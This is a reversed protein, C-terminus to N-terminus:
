SGCYRRERPPVPCRVLARMKGTALCTRLRSEHSYFVPFRRCIGGRSTVHDPLGVLPGGVRRCCFSTLRRHGGGSRSLCGLGVSLMTTSLRSVHDGVNICGFICGGRDKCGTLTEVM